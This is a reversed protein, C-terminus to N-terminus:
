KVVKYGAEDVAKVLADRQASGGVVAEQKGLDVTAETVGAVRKLAKEVAMKCHNCSMGEIKLVTESM